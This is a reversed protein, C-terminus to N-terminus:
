FGNAMRAPRAGGVLADLGEAPGGALLGARRLTATSAAGAYWASLGRAGLRVAGTGGHEHRVAAGDWVLRHRGSNWPADPDDVELDVTFPRAHAVAPWGRAAIAAPLDVVRLMWPEVEVPAATRPILLEVAPDLLRLTIEGVVSSWAAIGALLSRATDADDAVLDRVYLGEGRREAALYGRLDGDGDVVHVFDPKLLDALAFAPEARDLMGDVCAAARLYAARMAPLDAEVAPRVPLTARLRGVAGMPVRVSELAGVHEWGYRRYVGPASPFLAAIPQGAVRMMGLLGRLLEGAVGRGGVHPLVVVSAVGGCPVVRGGFFQGYGWVRAVGVIGAGDEAVLASWGEGVPGSSGFALRRMRMVADIDGPEFPRIRVM